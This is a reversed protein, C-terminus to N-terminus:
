RNVKRSKSAMKRKVKKKAKVKGSLKKPQDSFQNSGDQGAIYKGLYYEILNENNM